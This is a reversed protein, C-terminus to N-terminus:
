YLLVRAFNCYAVKERIRDPFPLSEILAPLCLTDELGLPLADCGDFDSGIGVADEGAVEVAHCIHEVVRELTCDRGSRAESDGSLFPRYFTVGVVGGRQGLARLQADDLNREHPRLADMCAHTVVMPHHSCELVSWFTERSAHALDLTVGQEECLAIVKRGLETLGQCAGACGGGLANNFNWTLGFCRVGLDLFRRADEVSRVTDAGELAAMLTLDAGLEREMQGRERNLRQLQEEQGEGFAAMMQVGGGRRLAREVDFHGENRWLLRGTSLTDCHADFIKTFVM